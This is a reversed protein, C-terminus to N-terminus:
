KNDTKVYMILEKFTDSDAECEVAERKGSEYEVLFSYITFNYTGLIKTQEGTRTGLVTVSRIKDVVKTEPEKEKQSSTFPFIFCFIMLAANLIYIFPSVKARSVLCSVIIALIVVGGILCLISVGKSRKFKM